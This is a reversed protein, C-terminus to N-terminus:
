RGFQGHFFCNAFSRIHLIEHLGLRNKDLVLCATLRDSIRAEVICLLSYSSVYFVAKILPQLLCDPSCALAGAIPRNVASTIEDSLTLVSKLM